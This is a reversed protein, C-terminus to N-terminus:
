RRTRWARLDALLVSPVLSRAIATASPRTPAFLAPILITQCACSVVTAGAAGPLGVRPILIWNLLVNVSTALGTFMLAYRQLNEAVIWKSRAIGQFVFVGAWAYLSLVPAAAAYEAGYVLRIVWPSLITTPVAVGIGLWTMMEYIRQLRSHYIDPDERRAALIAPFLSAAIVSPVFYWAESLRVAVAYCGVPGPGLFHEIMVQDIRMTVLLFVGTLLLPLGARLLTAARRGSFRVRFPGGTYLHCISLGFLLVCSELAKVWAFWVLSSHAVVLAVSSTSSVLIAALQAISSWKAQVRAEFRREFTRAENGFLHFLCIPTMMLLAQRGHGLSFATGLALLAMLITGGGRLVAVTGLIERETTSDMDAPELERVLIDDLGLSGLASFLMVFSIAFSLRGFDDRGLHRAVLVSVGFAAALRAIRSALM